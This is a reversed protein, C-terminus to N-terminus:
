MAGVQILQHKGGEHVGLRSHVSEAHFWYVCVQNNLKYRIFIGVLLARGMSFITGLIIPCKVNQLYREWSLIRSSLM